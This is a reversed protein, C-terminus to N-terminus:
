IYEKKFSNEIQAIVEKQNMGMCFHLSLDNNNCDFIQFWNNWRKTRISYGKFFYEKFIWKNKYERLDKRIEKLLNQLEM